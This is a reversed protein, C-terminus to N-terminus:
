ENDSKDRNTNPIKQVEIKYNVIDDGDYVKVGEPLDLKVEGSKSSRIYGAIITQTSIEEIDRILQGPGKIIVTDPSVARLTEAYGNAVEGRVKLDVKVTKTEYVLFSLNVDKYDLDVGEVVKGNKDLVELNVNHIKGDLYEEDDIHAEIRDVQNIASEPGKIKIVEPNQENVEVIKGDKLKDAIVVNVPMDKEIIRQINLNVKSPDVWELSIGSPTDTKVDVSKIGDRSDMVNIAAQIDDAKLNVINDRSGTLRVNVSTIDDKSVITYGREELKDQNQIIIPVNRFTRSTSPNTSTTVYAWMFIAVIISLILLQKDSNGNIKKFKELFKNMM